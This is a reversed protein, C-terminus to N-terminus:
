SPSPDAVKRFEPLRCEWRDGEQQVVRGGGFGDEAEEGVQATEVRKVLLDYQAIPLGHLGLISSTFIPPFLLLSPHLPRLFCVPEPEEGVRAAKVRKIARGRLVQQRSNQKIQNSNIGERRRDRSPRQPPQCPLTSETPPLLFPYRASHRLAPLSPLAPLLM